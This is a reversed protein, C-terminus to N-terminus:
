ILCRDILANIFNWCFRLALDVSKAPFSNFLGQQVAANVSVKLQKHVHLLWTQLGIYAHTYTCGIMIKVFCCLLKYTQAFFMDLYLCMFLILKLVCATLLLFHSM